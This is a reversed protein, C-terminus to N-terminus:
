NNYLNIANFYNLLHIFHPGDVQTVIIFQKKSFNYIRYIFIAHIFIKM